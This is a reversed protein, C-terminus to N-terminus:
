PRNDRAKEKGLLPTYLAVQRQRLLSKEDLWPAFSPLRYRWEGARSLPAAGEEAKRDGYVFSGGGPERNAVALLMQNEVARARLLWTPIGEGDGSIFALRAGMIAAGRLPEPDWLEQLTLLVAKGWPSDWLRYGEGPRAWPRAAPPLFLARQQHAMGEPTMAVTTLYLDGEAWELLTTILCGNLRRAWELLWDSGPGPLPEAWSAIDRPGRIDRAAVWQPLVVVQPLDGGSLSKLGEELSEKMAAPQSPAVGRQVVAVTGPAHEKREEPYFQPNLLLRRTWPSSSPEGAGAEGELTVSAVVVGDGRSLVDLIEGHPGLISTGGSFAVGEEEGWRNAAVWPLGNELARTRWTPSPAPSLWNVPHLIIQAGLERLIR